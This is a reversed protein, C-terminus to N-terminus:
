DIYIHKESLNLIYNYQISAQLCSVPFWICFSIDGSSDESRRFAYFHMYICM